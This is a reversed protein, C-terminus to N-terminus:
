KSNETQIFIGSMIIITIIIWIVPEGSNPKLRICNLINKFFSGFIETMADSLSSSFSIGNNQTSSTFLNFM